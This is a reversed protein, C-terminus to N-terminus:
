KLLGLAKMKRWLIARSMGLGKAGEGRHGNNNSLLKLTESREQIEHNNSDSDLGIPSEGKLELPLDEFEIYDSKGMIMAYEIANSLGLINGPWPYNTIAM